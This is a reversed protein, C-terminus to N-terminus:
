AFPRDSLSTMPRHFAAHYSRGSPMARVSLKLLDATAHKIKNSTPVNARHTEDVPNVTRTPQPRSINALSLAHHEEPLWWTHISKTPSDPHPQQKKTIIGLSAALDLWAEAEQRSQGVGLQRLFQDLTMGRALFNSDVYPMHREHLCYAIRDPLWEILHCIAKVLPHALNPAVTDAAHQSNNAGFVLRESRIFLGAMSAQHLQEEEASSLALKDIYAWKWNRQRLQNVIRIILGAYAPVGSIENVTDNAQAALLDDFYRVEDAAQELARSLCSRLSVIIVVHGRKQSTKVVTCFDSDGTVLVIKRRPNFSISDQEIITRVDDVIKMDSSNKGRQSIVDCTEVGWQQLKDKVARSARSARNFLMDWDAYAVLHVQTGLDAVTVKVAEVIQKLDTSLGARELGIYLNEFDMRVDVEPLRGGDLSLVEVSPFRYAARVLLNSTLWQGSNMDWPSTPRLRTGYVLAASEQLSPTNARSNTSYNWNM